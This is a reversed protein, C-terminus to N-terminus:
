YNSIKNIDDMLNSAQAMRVNLIKEKIKIAEEKAEQISTHFWFSRAVALESQDHQDIALEDVKLTDLNIKYLIM